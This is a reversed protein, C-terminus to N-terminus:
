INKLLIREISLKKRLLKDYHKDTLVNRNESLKLDTKEKLYDVLAEEDFVTPNKIVNSEKRKRIGTVTDTEKSCATLFTCVLM